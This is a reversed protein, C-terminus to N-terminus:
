KRSLDLAFDGMTMVEIKGEGRRKCVYEVFREFDRSLSRYGLLNWPHM